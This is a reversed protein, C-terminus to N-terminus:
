RDDPAGNPAEVVPVMRTGEERFRETMFIKLTAIEKRYEEKELGYSAGRSAILRLPNTKYEWPLLRIKAGRSALFLGDRDPRALTALSKEDPAGILAYRRHFAVEILLNRIDQKKAASMEALLTPAERLIDRLRRDYFSTTVPREGSVTLLSITLSFPEEESMGEDCGKQRICARIIEAKDSFSRDDRTVLVGRPGLYLYDWGAIPEHSFFSATLATADRVTAGLFLCSAIGAIEELSSPANPLFSAGPPADTGVAALTTCSEEVLRTLPDSRRTLERVVVIAAFIVFGLVLAGTVIKLFRDGTMM